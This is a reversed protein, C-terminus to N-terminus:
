TRISAWILPDSLGDILGLHSVMDEGVGDSVVPTLIKSALEHSLPNAFGNEPCQSMLEVQILVKMMEM